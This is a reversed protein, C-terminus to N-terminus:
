RSKKKLLPDIRKIFLVEFVFIVYRLAVLMFLFDAVYVFRSYGFVIITLFFLNLFIIAFSPPLTITEIKKIIFTFIALLFVIMLLSFVKFLTLGILVTIIFSIWKWQSIASLWRKKEIFDGASLLFEFVILLLSLKLYIFEEFGSVIKNYIVVPIKDSYETYFRIIKQTTPLDKIEERSYFTTTNNRVGEPHWGGDTFNAENNGELMVKDGQTSLVITKGAKSSAYLSWPLITVIFSVIAIIVNIIKNKKRIVQYIMYAFFLPPLYILSGKVLLSLGIVIGLVLSSVMNKRKEHWIFVFLLIFLSFTILSETMLDSTISQYKNLFLIGGAIGSLIGPIKWYYYGLLPLFAAVIILLFLQTQKAKKPSIGFVKYVIGLFYPYGPTRYFHYDPKTNKFENFYYDHWKQDWARTMKYKEFPEAPGFVPFGHNTAYNVAMSQYEWEDGGLLSSDDFKARGLYYFSYVVLLVFCLGILYKPEYFWKNGPETKISKM